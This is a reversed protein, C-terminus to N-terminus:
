RNELVRTVPMRVITIDARIRSPRMTPRTKATDIWGRIEPFTANSFTVPCFTCLEFSLLCVIKNPALLRQGGGDKVIQRATSTQKPPANNRETQLKPKSNNGVRHISKDPFQASSGRQSKASTRPTFDTVHSSHRFEISRNSRGAGDAGSPAHTQCRHKSFVIREENNERASEDCRRHVATRTPLIKKATGRYQENTSNKRFAARRNRPALRVYLKSFVHTKGDVGQILKM